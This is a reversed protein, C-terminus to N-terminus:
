VLSKFYKFAFKSLVEVVHNCCRSIHRLKFSRRVLVLMQVNQFLRFYSNIHIVHAQFLNLSGCHIWSWWWHSLHTKVLSNYVLSFLKLRQLILTMQLVRILGVIMVHGDSNHIVIRYGMRGNMTDVAADM